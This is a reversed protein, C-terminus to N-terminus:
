VQKMLEDFAKVSYYLYGGVRKRGTLICGLTDSVTNGPHVEIFKFGPVNELLLVERHFAPSDYFVFSYEGFPICTEGDIKKGDRYPDELTNCVFRQTYMNFLMGATFRPFLERELRLKFDM